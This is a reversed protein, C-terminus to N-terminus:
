NALATLYALFALFGAAGVAFGAALARLPRKWSAPILTAGVAAAAGVALAGSFTDLVGRLFGGAPIGSTGTPSKAARFAIQWGEYELVASAVLAIAMTGLVLRAAARRDNSKAVKASPTEIIPAELARPTPTEFPPPARTPDRFDHQM